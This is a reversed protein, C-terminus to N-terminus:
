QQIAHHERFWRLATRLNDHETLLRTSWVQAYRRTAVEEALALYYGAHRGQVAELEGAVRLREHAYQHLTELLRYRAAGDGGEEAVVLSKRVVRRMLDVVDQHEIGDGAGVTEAAEINWGGPVVSLR